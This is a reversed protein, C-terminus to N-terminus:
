KQRMFTEVCLLGPAAFDQHRDAAGLREECLRGRRITVTRYAYTRRSCPLLIFLISCCLKVSTAVKTAVFKFCFPLFCGNWGYGFCSNNLLHLVKTTINQRLELTTQPCSFFLETASFFCFFCNSVMLFFLCAFVFSSSAFVSVPRKSKVSVPLSMKEPSSSSESELVSSGGLVLAEEWISHLWLACFLEDRGVSALVHWRNEADSRAPAEIADATSLVLANNNSLVFLQNNASAFNSPFAFIFSTM